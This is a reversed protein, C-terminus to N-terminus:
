VAMFGSQGTTGTLLWGCCASALHATESWCRSLPSRKTHGARHRLAAWSVWIVTAFSRSVTGNLFIVHPTLLQDPAHVEAMLSFCLSFGTWVLKAAQKILLLTSNQSSCFQHSQEMSKKEESHYYCTDGGEWKWNAPCLECNQGPFLFGDGRKQEWVRGWLVDSNAQSSLIRLSQSHKLHGENMWFAVTTGSPKSLSLSLFPIM